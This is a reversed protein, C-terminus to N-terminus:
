QNFPIIYMYKYFAITLLNALDRKIYIHIKEILSIINNKTTIIHFINKMIQKYISINSFVEKLSLISFFLDKPFIGFKADAHFHSPLRRLM